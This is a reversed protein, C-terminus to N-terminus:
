RPDNGSTLFIQLAPPHKGSEINNLVEESMYLNAYIERISIDSSIRLERLTKIM